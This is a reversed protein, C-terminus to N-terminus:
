GTVSTLVRWPAIRVGSLLWMIVLRALPSSSGALAIWDHAVLRLLRKSARSVTGREDCSSVSAMSEDLGVSFGTGTAVAKFKRRRKARRDRRVTQRGM